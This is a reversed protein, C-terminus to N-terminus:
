PLNNWIVTVGPASAFASDATVLPIDEVIAQAALLRDFPDKHDWPMKGALLSHRTSVSLEDGRLRILAEAWAADTILPLAEPLKGLHAKTAAEMASASSVVLRVGPASLAERLSTPLRHPTYVM